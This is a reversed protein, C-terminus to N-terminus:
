NKKQKRKTHKDKFYDYSVNNNDDDDNNYKIRLNIIVM